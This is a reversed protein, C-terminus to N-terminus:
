SRINKFRKVAHLQEDTCCGGAIFTFEFRSRQGPSESIKKILMNIYKFTVLISKTMFYQKPGSRGSSHLHCYVATVRDFGVPCTYVECLAM